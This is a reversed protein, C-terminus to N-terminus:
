AARHDAAPAPRVRRLVLLLGAAATFTVAVGLIGAVGTSWREDDIGEVAYGATPAGALAHATEQEAFGEDIAVKELGDPDGSAAPSVFFALALAIAMAGAVFAGLTGGRRRSM